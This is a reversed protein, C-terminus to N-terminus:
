KLIKVKKGNKTLRIQDFNGISQIRKAKHSASFDDYTNFQICDIMEKNSYMTMQYRIFM